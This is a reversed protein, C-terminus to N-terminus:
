DRLSAKLAKVDVFEPIMFFGDVIAEYHWPASTGVGRINETIVLGALPGDWIVGALSVDITWPQLVTFELIHTRAVFSIEGVVTSGDPSKIPGKGCMYYGDGLWEMVTTTMDLILVYEDVQLSPISITHQTIFTSYDGALDLFHETGTFRVHQSGPGPPLAFLTSSFALAALTAALTKMVKKM